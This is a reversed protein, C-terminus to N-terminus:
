SLSDKKHYVRDQCCQMNRYPSRPFDTTTVFQHDIITWDSSFSLRGSIPPSTGISIRV